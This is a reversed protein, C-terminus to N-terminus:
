SAPRSIPGVTMSTTPRCRCSRALDLSQKGQRHVVEQAPASAVEQWPVPNEAAHQFRPLMESPEVGMAEAMWGRDSVLGLGGPDSPRGTEPFVTARLDMSGSPM